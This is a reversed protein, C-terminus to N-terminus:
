EPINLQTFLLKLQMELRGKDVLEDPNSSIQEVIKNVIESKSNSTLMLIFTGDDKFVIGHLEKEYRSFLIYNHYKCAFQTQIWKDTLLSYKDNYLNRARSNYKTIYKSPDKCEYAIMTHKYINYGYKKLIEVASKNVNAFNFTWFTYVRRRSFIQYFFFMDQYKELLRISYDFVKDYKAQSHIEITRPELLQIPKDPSPLM